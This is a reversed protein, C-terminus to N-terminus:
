YLNVNVQSESIMWLTGIIIIVIGLIGTAIILKGILVLIQNIENSKNEDFSTQSSSKGLAKFGYKIARALASFINGYQIEKDAQYDDRIFSFSDKFYEILQRHRILLVGTLITIVCGLIVSFLKIIALLEM